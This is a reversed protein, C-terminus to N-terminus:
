SLSLTSMQCTMRQRTTGRSSADRELSANEWSRTTGDSLVFRTGTPVPLGTMRMGVADLLEGVYVNTGIKEIYPAMM